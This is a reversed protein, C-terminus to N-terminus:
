DYPVPCTIQIKRWLLNPCLHLGWHSSHFWIDTCFLENLRPKNLMPFRSKFHRKLPPDFTTTAWQTTAEFTKKIVEIPKWGLFPQYHAIPHRAPMSQHVLLHSNSLNLYRLAQSIEDDKEV